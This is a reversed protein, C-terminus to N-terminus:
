LIYSEAKECRLLMSLLAATLQTQAYRTSLMPNRFRPMFDPQIM